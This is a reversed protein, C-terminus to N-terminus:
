REDEEETSGDLSRFEATPAARLLGRLERRLKRETFLPIARNAVLAGGMLGLMLFPQTAHWDLVISLPGLISVTIADATIRGRRRLAPDLQAEIEAVREVRAAIADPATAM